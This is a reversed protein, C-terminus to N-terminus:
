KEDVLIRAAERDTKKRTKTERVKRGREIRELKGEPTQNYARLKEATKQRSEISRTQTQGLERKRQNTAKHKAARETLVKQGEETRYFEKQAANRKAVLTPDVKKGKLAVVARQQGKRWSGLELQRENMKRSIEQREEISTRDWKVKRAEKIKQTWTAKDEETRKDWGATNGKMSESKKACHEASLKRGTLAKSLNECHQQSKIKGKHSASIKARVEPTGMLEIRAAEAEETKGSLMLWALKDQVRGHQEWLLRHAEAHEAITLLVLNDPDDTGGAHRPIIHHRHYIVKSM